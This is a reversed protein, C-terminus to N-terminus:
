TNSVPREGYLIARGSCATLANMCYVRWTTQRAQTNNGYPQIINVNDRTDSLSCRKVGMQRETGGNYLGIITGPSNSRRANSFWSVAPQKKETLWDILWDFLCHM